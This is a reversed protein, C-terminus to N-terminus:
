DTLSIIASADMLYYLEGDIEIPEGWNKVRFGVDGAKLTMKRKATGTGVALVKVKNSPQRASEPVFLGGETTESPPFCKVLVNNRIPKLM